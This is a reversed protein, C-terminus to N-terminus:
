IQIMTLRTLLENKKRRSVEVTEGDTMLVYGGDGKIYKVVQKLNILTSNHVRFFNLDSLLEEYEKLIRSVVLRSGNSLILQTYSEDALCRVIDEVNVMQLGDFTPVAIRASKSKLNLNSLLLNFDPASNGKKEKREAVKNVASVLEDTDVPKLLYDVASFKIAKIAYHDYATTFIVDFSPTQITELLDFGNRFPMEVDLFVLDPGHKKIAELASDVGNCLEAVQVAPCYTALLNKLTIRSKEEDDVIIAKTM